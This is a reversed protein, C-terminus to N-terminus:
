CRYNSIYSNTLLGIFVNFQLYHPITINIALHLKKITFTAAISKFGEILRKM